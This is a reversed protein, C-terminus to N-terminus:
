GGARRWCVPWQQRPNSHAALYQARSTQEELSAAAPDGSGGAAAWSSSTFQYYGRYRGSSSGGPSECARLRAWFDGGGPAAPLPARARARSVRPPPTPPPTPATEPIEPVDRYPPGSPASASTRVEAASTSKTPGIGLEPGALLGALCFVLVAGTATRSM